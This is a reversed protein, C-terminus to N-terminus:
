RAAPNGSPAPTLPKRALFRVVRGKHQVNYDPHSEVESYHLVELQPYWTPVMNSEYGLREGPSKLFHEIVIVGDPRLAATLRPALDKALGGMYILAILDWRNTGYDYTMADQRLATVALGEKAAQRTLREIGVDSVDIATVTWGHRALHLANRGFGTGVDLAAGAPLEAAVQALFENAENRINPRPVAFARNWREREAEPSGAPPPSAAQASALVLAAMLMAAHFHSISM